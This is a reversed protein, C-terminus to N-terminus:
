RTLVLLKVRVACPSSIWKLPVETDPPRCGPAVYLVDCALSTRLAAKEVPPTKNNNQQQQKKNKQKKKNKEAGPM